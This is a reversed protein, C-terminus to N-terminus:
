LPRGARYTARVDAATPATTLGRLPRALLCLDAPAGVAVRRRRRGPDAPDGLFLGLARELDLREGAGVVQGTPARRDMAAAVAHWPDPDTYPADTSGAVPIGRELLTACRYLHPREDEDTDVLYRDGREAVFGPQTVVTLGMAAIRDAAPPTIVSGHEIRDAPGVGALDWAAIAVALTAATVTHVAVARGARHATAIRDALEGLEPLRDEDLLVKVPGSRLPEPPAAGALEVGGTVWVEQPLQGGAAAAALAAHGGPDRYPTCDTVGTVGFRALLEGVPGLDPFGDPLAAALLEDGRDVVGTPRGDAGRHVAPHGPDVACLHELAVSSLTWRKGSRDQVRVPRRGVLRDLVDRDLPGAVSEHYGVARIWEGPPTWADAAALAAAFQEPTTVSPPGVHVSRLAAALAALHVHHDHLGPLLAGGDGDVVEGDADPRLGHGIRRVRGGAVLVDTRVGDVEVDRFLTSTHDTM